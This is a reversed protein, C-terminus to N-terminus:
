WDWGASKRGVVIICIEVVRATAKQKAAEVKALGIANGSFSWPPLCEAAPATDAATFALTVAWIVLHSSSMLLTLVKTSVTPLTVSGAVILEIAAVAKTAAWFSPAEFVMRCCSTVSSAEPLAAAAASSPCNLIIPGAILSVIELGPLRWFFRSAILPALYLERM